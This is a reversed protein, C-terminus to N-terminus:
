SGGSRETPYKCARFRIIPSNISRAIFTRSINSTTEPTIEDYYAIISRLDSEAEKRFLITKM